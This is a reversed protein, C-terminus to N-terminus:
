ANEKEEEAPSTTGDVNVTRSIGVECFRQIEAILRECDRYSKKGPKKNHAYIKQLIVQCIAQSGLLMNQRRLISLQEEVAKKLEDDNNQASTGVIDLSEEELEINTNEDM